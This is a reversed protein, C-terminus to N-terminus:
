LYTRGDVVRLAKYFYLFLEARKIFVYPTKHTAFWKAIFYAGQAIYGGFGGNAIGHAFIHALAAKLEAAGSDAIGKHLSNTNYIVM